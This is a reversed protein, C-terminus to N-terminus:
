GGTAVTSLVAEVSRTWADADLSRPAALEDALMRFLLARVLCQEWDAGRSGARLVSRPAGEWTIADIAVVAIAWATPRWYLALDIVAPPSGAAFLVNGTLDGHVLQSSAVVPRRAGAVRDVLDDVNQPIPQEEWAIREAISWPDARTDLFGPRALEALAAHLRDGAAVIDTWRGDHHAGALLPYACWGDVVFGGGRSRVPPALRVESQLAPIVEAEWELQGLPGDAPRLVFEGVSWSRGRGGALRRPSGHLGFAAIAEPSPPGASGNSGDM